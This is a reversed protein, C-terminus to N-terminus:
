RWQVVQLHDHGLVVIPVDGDRAAVLIHRAAEHGGDAVIARSDDYIASGDLGSPTVYTLRGRTTPRAYRESCHQNSQGLIPKWFLPVTLMASASSDYPIYSAGRDIKYERQCDTAPAYVVPIMLSSSRKSTTRCEQGPAPAQPPIYVYTSTLVM